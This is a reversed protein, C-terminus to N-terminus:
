DAPTGGDGVGADGDAADPVDLVGGDGGDGPRGDFSPGDPPPTLEVVRDCAAVLSCLVPLALAIRAIQNM